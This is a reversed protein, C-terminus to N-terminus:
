TPFHWGHPPRWRHRSGPRAPTAAGEIVASPVDYMLWRVLAPDKLSALAPELALGRGRARHTDTSILHVLGARLLEKSTRAAGPGFGGTLSAATLQVLAGDEVLEAVRHISDQIVSNREPHALVVTFGHSKLQYLEDGADLPWGFFPLEVLVHNPSGGLGFRELKSAMLDQLRDYAIEAGPLVEVDVARDHFAHRVVTLAQEMERASTPYDDRVHPTAALVTVGAAAAERGIAISAELDVAGDDLGPLVHTHLDIM